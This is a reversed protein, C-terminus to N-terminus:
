RAAGGVLELPNAISRGIARVIATARVNDVSNSILWRFLNDGLDDDFQMVAFTFGATSGEEKALNAPGREVAAARTRQFSCVLVVKATTNLAFCIWCGKM